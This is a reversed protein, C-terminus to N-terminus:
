EGLKIKFGNKTFTEAIEKTISRKGNFLLTLLTNSINCMKAFDGKKMLKRRLFLEFDKKDNEDFYYFRKCVVIM